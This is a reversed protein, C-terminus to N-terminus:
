VIKYKKLLAEIQQPGVPKVIYETIGIKAAQAKLEKQLFASVIAFPRNFNRKRLEVFVDLGTLKGIGFNLDCLVFAPQHEMTLRIAEEATLAVVCRCHLEEIIKKTISLQAYNDDAFLVVPAPTSPPTVTPSQSPVNRAASLTERMIPADDDTIKYQKKLDGVFTTGAREREKVKRLYTGVRIKDVINQYDSESITQSRRLADIRRQTATTIIGDEFAEELISILEKSM